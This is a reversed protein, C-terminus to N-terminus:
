RTDIEGWDDGAFSGDPQQLGKVDTRVMTSVVQHKQEYTHGQM